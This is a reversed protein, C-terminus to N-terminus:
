NQQRQCYKLVLNVQTKYLIYTLLFFL